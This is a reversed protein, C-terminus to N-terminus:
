AIRGCCRRFQGQRELAGERLYIEGISLEAEPFTPQQEIAQRLLRLAEGMDPNDRDAILARAEELLIWPAVASQAQLGAALGLFLFTLRLRWRNM